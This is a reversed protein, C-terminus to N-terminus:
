SIFSFLIYNKDKKINWVSSFFYILYTRKTCLSLILDDCYLVCIHNTDRCSHYASVNQGNIICSFNSICVIHISFYCFVQTNFLSVSKKNTPEKMLFNISNSVLDEERGHFHITKNISLIIQWSTMLSPWRIFISNLGFYFDALSAQYFSFGLSINSRVTKSLFM